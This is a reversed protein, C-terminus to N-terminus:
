KQFFTDVDNHPLLDLIISPFVLCMYGKFEGFSAASSLGIELLITLGTFLQFGERRWVEVGDWGLFGGEREGRGELDMGVLIDGFLVVSTLNIIIGWLEQDIILHQFLM